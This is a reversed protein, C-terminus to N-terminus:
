SDSRNLLYALGGVRHWRYGYAELLICHKGSKEAVSHETSLLNVLREASQGELGV